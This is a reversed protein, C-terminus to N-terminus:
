IMIKAVTIMPEFYVQDLTFGGDYNVGYSTKDEFYVALYGSGPVFREIRTVHQVQSGLTGDLSSCLNSGAQRCGPLSLAEDYLRIVDSQALAMGLGLCFVACCIALFNKM